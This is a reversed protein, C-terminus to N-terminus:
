LVIKKGKNRIILKMIAILREQGRGKIQKNAAEVKVLAANTGDLYTFGEYLCEIEELQRPTFAPVLPNTKSPVFQANLFQNLTVKDNRLIHALFLAGKACVYCSDEKFEGKILDRMNLDDSSDDAWNKRNAKNKLPGTVYGGHTAVLQKTKLQKIVDRALAVRMEPKNM